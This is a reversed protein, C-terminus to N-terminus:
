TDKNSNVVKCDLIVNYVKSSTALVTGNRDTIDGRKFPITRSDYQQQSQILVQKKYKDGSKANIYTIRLTLGVLALLVLIFLGALKKRMTGSLKRKQKKRREM